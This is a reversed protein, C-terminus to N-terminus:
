TPFSVQGQLWTYHPVLEGKKLAMWARRVLPDSGSRSRLAPHM